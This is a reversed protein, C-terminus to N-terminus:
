SGNGKIREYTETQQELYARALSEAMDPRELIWKMAEMTTRVQQRLQTELNAIRADKADLEANQANITYLADEPVSAVQQAMHENMLAEVNDASDDDGDGATAAHTTAHQAESRERELEARGEDTWGVHWTGHLGMREWVYGSHVLRRVFDPKWEYTAQGIVAFLEIDSPTDGSVAEAPAAPESPARNSPDAMVRILEAGKWGLNDACDEHYYIETSAEEYYPADVILEGCVTCTPYNPQPQRKFDEIVKKAWEDIEDTGKSVASVPQASESHVSDDDASDLVSRKNDDVMM